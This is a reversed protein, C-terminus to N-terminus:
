LTAAQAVAVSGNESGAASEKMYAIDTNAAFGEATNGRCTVARHAGSAAASSGARFVKIRAPDNSPGASASSDCVGGTALLMINETTGDTATAGSFRLVNDTLESGTFDAPTVALAQQGYAACLAIVAGALPKMPFNAPRKM